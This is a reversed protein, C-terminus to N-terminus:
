FITFNLKFLQNLICCYTKWCQSFYKKNWTHYPFNIQHTVENISNYFRKAFYLEIILRAGLAPGVNCLLNKVQKVSLKHPPLPRREDNNNDDYDVVTEDIHQRKIINYAIRQSSSIKFCHTKDIIYGNNDHDDDVSTKYLTDILEHLQRILFNIKNPSSVDFVAYMLCDLQDIVVRELNDVLLHVGLGRNLKYVTRNPGFTAAAVSPKIILNLFYVDLPFYRLRKSINNAHQWITSDSTAHVNCSFRALICDDDVSSITLKVPSRRNVAFHVHQLPSVFEIAEDVYSKFVVLTNSSRVCRYHEGNNWVLLDEVTTAQVIAHLDNLHTAKEVIDVRLQELLSKLPMADCVNEVTVSKRTEVQLDICSLIPAATKLHASISAAGKVIASADANKFSATYANLITKYFAPSMSALTRECLADNILKKSIYPVNQCTYLQKKLANM